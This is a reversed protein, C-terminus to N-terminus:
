VDDKYGKEEAEEKWFHADMAWAEVQNCLQEIIDEAEGGLKKGLEYARDMLELDAPHNFLARQNWREVM